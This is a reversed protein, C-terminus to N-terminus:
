ITPSNSRPTEDNNHNTSLEADDQFVINFFRQKTMEERLTNKDNGFACIRRRVAPTLEPSLVNNMHLLMDEPLPALITEKGEDPKMHDTFRIWKLLTVAQYEQRIRKADRLIPIIETTHYQDYIDPIEASEEAIRLPTKGRSDIAAIDAGEAILFRVMHVRGSQVAIHLPTEKATSVSNVRAGNHLLFRAMDLHGFSVAIHFAQDKTTFDKEEEFFDDTIPAGTFGTELLLKATSVYGFKAATHLDIEVTNPCFKIFLNVIAEHGMKLAAEFPTDCDNDEITIDAGRTILLEAIAYANTSAAEHLPTAGDHDQLAM